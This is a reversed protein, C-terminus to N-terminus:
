SWGLFVPTLPSSVMGNQLSAVMHSRQDDVSAHGFEIHMFNIKASEQDWKKPLAEIFDIAMGRGREKMAARKREECEPEPVQDNADAGYVPEFLLAAAASWLMCFWAKAAM